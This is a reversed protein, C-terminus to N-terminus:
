INAMQPNLEPYLTFYQGKGESTGEPKARKFDKM